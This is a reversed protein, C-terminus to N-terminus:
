NCEYDGRNDVCLSLLMHSCDTIIISFELMMMTERERRESEIRENAL